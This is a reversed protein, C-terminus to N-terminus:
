QSAEIAQHGYRDNSAVAWAGVQDLPLTYDDFSYSFVRGPEVVDFNDHLYEGKSTKISLWPQPGFLQGQQVTVLLQESPVTKIECKLKLQPPEETFLIDRFAEVTESFYFKVDKFEKIVSSLTQRFEDIEVQMDRWDHNTVGVYVKEDKQAKQFAKRLEEGNINRHRSKMNLVRAIVRRCQGPKQYDDHHPHYLSWDSPAWRWDGFRGAAMDKQAKPAQDAEVSQNSPDFPMWQELFWHSDPRESHFGARNVLPFWRREILRRSIVQTIESFSNVYSTAPIHAARGFHVPHFHWHLRDRESGPQQIRNQYYDFVKFYGLDRRRPNEVFGVHDMCHWNYVWGQGASDQLINRYGPAMVRDLMEGIQSWDGLFNVTHPDVVRAVEEERGHLPIEKRQLKKLNEETPEVQIDFILKLRKFLEGRDEYLPGETDIHHVIHVAGSM